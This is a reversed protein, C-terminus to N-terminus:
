RLEAIRMEDIKRQKREYDLEAETRELNDLDNLKENMSEIVQPFPNVPSGWICGSELSAFFPQEAFIATRPTM